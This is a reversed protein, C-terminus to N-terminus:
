VSQFLVKVKSNLNDNDNKEMFGHTILAEWFCNTQRAASNSGM